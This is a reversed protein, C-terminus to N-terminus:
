PTRATNLPTERHSTDGRTDDIGRPLAPAPDSLIEARSESISGYPMQLEFTTGPGPLIAVTGGHAAVIASVIALGLGAGGTARARSPDSRFFPEFIRDLDEPRIGPGDDHVTLVARDGEVAVTVSVATGDPTHTLANGVLNDVVQRLRHADGTVPVRGPTELTIPRHPASVEFGTVAAQAVAALDVEELRLPRERDLQALLFLDDVLTGMRAAENKIYHMSTALDAPRDSVGLDFIEAYGLISTLPTRLEHSADALFRRLREESAARAAFAEEIRGLMSNFALGLEGVETGPTVSSVRQTLDGEAIAGATRAMADLPRMDRRVMVWSIVGLVALLVASVVLEILLLRGLTSELDTLPQAVVITGGDALPRAVARYSVGASGPSSTTFFLSTASSGGSGPLSGPLTPAAPVSGGYSFFVHAKVKGQATRLEGYTGPPVLVGPNTGRTPSSFGSGGHFPSTSSPVGSGTTPSTPRHAGPQALPDFGNPSTLAREVPFTAAVLQQDVRTTLFSRLSTYTIVDSIVLGAAVIVVVLLLLRLRLTV